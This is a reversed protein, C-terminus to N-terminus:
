ILVLIVRAGRGRAIGIGYGGYCGMRLSAYSKCERCCGYRLWSVMRGVVTPYIRNPGAWQKITISDM